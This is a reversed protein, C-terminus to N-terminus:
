KKPRRLYQKHYEQEHKLIFKYFSVTVFVGLPLFTLFSVETFQVTKIIEINPKM